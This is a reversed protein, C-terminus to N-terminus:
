PALGRSGAVGPRRAKPGTGPGSLGTAKRRCELGGGLPSGFRFSRRWHRCLSFGGLGAAIDVRFDGVFENGGDFGIGALGRQRPAAYGPRQEHGDVRKRAIGIVADVHNGQPNFGFDALESCRDPTGITLPRLLPSLDALALLRGVDDEVLLVFGIWIRGVGVVVSLAANGTCRGHEVGVLNVPERWGVVGLGQARDLAIFRGLVENCCGARADLM